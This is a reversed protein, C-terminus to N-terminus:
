RSPSCNASTKCTNTTTAARTSVRDLLAALLLDLEDNDLMDAGNVAAEGMTLAQNM